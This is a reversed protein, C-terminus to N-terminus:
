SQSTFSSVWTQRRSRSISNRRVPEGNKGNSNVGVGVGVEVGVRVGVGDVVGDEVSVDVGV